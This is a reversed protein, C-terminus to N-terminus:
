TDYLKTYHISYSTIVHVGIGDGAVKKAIRFKTHMGGRGFDSQQSSIADEPERDTPKIREILEAGESDPHATFVGDINSLIILAESDVM